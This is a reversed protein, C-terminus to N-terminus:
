LENFAIWGEDIMSRRTTSLVWIPLHFGGPTATSALTVFRCEEFMGQNLSELHSGGNRPATDHSVGPARTTPSAAAMIGGLFAGPM